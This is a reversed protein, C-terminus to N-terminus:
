AAAKSDSTAEDMAQSTSRRRKNDTTSVHGSGSSAAAAASRSRAEVLQDISCEIRELELGGAGPGPLLRFAPNTWEQGFVGGWSTPVLGGAAGAALSCALTALAAIAYPDAALAHMARPFTYWDYLDEPDEVDAAELPGAPPPNVAYLACLSIPMDPVAITVPPLGLVHVEDSEIECLESVARVAASAQSEGAESALWPIRMGEWEGTLSRVLVCRNGRLILGAVMTGSSSADESCESEEQKSDSAHAHGHGHAHGHSHGTGEGHECGADCGVFDHPTDAGHSGHSM